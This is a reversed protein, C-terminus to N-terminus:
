PNSNNYTWNAVQSTYETEYSTPSITLAAGSGISLSYTCGSSTVYYDMALNGYPDNPTVTAAVQTYLCGEANVAYYQYDEHGYVFYKGTPVSQYVSMGLGRSLGYDPNDLNNYWTGLTPQYAGAWMGAAGSVQGENPWWAIGTYDSYGTSSGQTPVGPETYNAWQYYGYFDDNVQTSSLSTATVVLTLQNSDTTTSIQNNTTPTRTEGVLHSSDAGSRQTGSSPTAPTLVGNLLNSITALDTSPIQSNFSFM